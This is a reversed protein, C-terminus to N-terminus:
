RRLWYLLLVTIGLPLLPLWFIGPMPPLTGQELATRAASAVNFVVVYAVIAWLMRSATVKGPSATGLVGAILTMGFTIFPLTLRWQLEAIERPVGVRALDQTPRARRDLVEDVTPPTEQWRIGLREFIHRRDGTAETGLTIVEGDYFEVLRSGDPQPPAMSAREARILRDGLTRQQRAFVDRLFQENEIASATLVLSPGLAYFRGAQMAAVEPRAARDEVVDSTRYAWPRAQLTLMAVVIVMIVGVGIVPLLIRARSWGGAFLAILERDRNMREFAFLVSFFMSTPVIVEWAIVCQLLILAWMATPALGAAAADQLLEAAVYAAFVATLLFWGVLFPWAMERVLYRDITM